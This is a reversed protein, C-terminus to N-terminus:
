FFDSVGGEGETESMGAVMSRLEEGATFFDLDGEDIVGGDGGHMSIEHIIRRRCIDDGEVVAFDENRSVSGGADSGIVLMGELAFQGKVENM